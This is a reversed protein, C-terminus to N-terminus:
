ALRGKNLAFLAFSDANTVAKEPDEKALKQCAEKGYEHDRSDGNELFHSSEHVLIISQSKPRLKWFPPCLRIMFIAPDLEFPPPPTNM